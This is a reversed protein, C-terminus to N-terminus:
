EPFESDEFLDDLDKGTVKSAQILSKDVYKEKIQDGMDFYDEQELYKIGISFDEVQILSLHNIIQEKTVEEDLLIIGTHYAPSGFLFLFYYDVNSLRDSVIDGINQIRYDTTKLEDANISLTDYNKTSIEFDEFDEVLFISYDYDAEFCQYDVLTIDGDDYMGTLMDELNDTLWRKGPNEKLFEAYDENIGNVAIDYKASTFSYLIFDKKNKFILEYKEEDLEIENEDLLQELRQKLSLKKITTKYEVSNKIPDLKKEIVFNKIKERLHGIDVSTTEYLVMFLVKKYEFLNVTSYVIELLEHWDEYNSTFEKTILKRLEYFSEFNSKLEFFDEKRIGVIYGVGDRVRRNSQYSHQILQNLVEYVSDLRDIIEQRVELETNFNM